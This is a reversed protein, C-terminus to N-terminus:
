AVPLIHCLGIRRLERATHSADACGAAPLDAASDTFIVYDNM